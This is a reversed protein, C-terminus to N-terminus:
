SQLVLMIHMVSFGSNQRYSINTEFGGELSCCENVLCNSEPDDM